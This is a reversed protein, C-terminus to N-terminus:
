ALQIPELDRSTDRPFLERNAAANLAVARARMRRIRRRLTSAQADLDDLAMVVDVGACVLRHRAATERTPM